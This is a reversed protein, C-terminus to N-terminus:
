LGRSQPEADERGWCPRHPQPALKAVQWIQLTQSSTDIHEQDQPAPHEKGIGSICRALDCHHFDCSGGTRGPKQDIHSTVDLQM